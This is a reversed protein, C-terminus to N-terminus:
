LTPVQSLYPKQMQNERGETAASYGNMAILHTLFNFIKDPTLASPRSITTNNHTKVSPRKFTSACNSQSTPVPKNSCDAPRPFPKSQSTPIHSTSRLHNNVPCNTAPSHSSSAPHQLINIHKQMSQKVPDKQPSYATQLPTRPSPRTIPSNKNSSPGSIPPDHQESPGPIPYRSAPITNSLTNHRHM